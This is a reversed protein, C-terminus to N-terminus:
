LKPFLEPPSEYHSDEKIYIESVASSEPEKKILNRQKEYTTAIYDFRICFIFLTEILHELGNPDVWPELRLDPVMEKLHTGNQQLAVLKKKVAAFSHVANSIIDSM